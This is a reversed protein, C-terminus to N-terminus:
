RTRGRRVDLCTNDFHSRLALLESLVENPFGTRNGRRDVLLEYLHERLAPPDDWNAALSNAVRPFQRTLQLPWVSRPLRAIWKFTGPLVVSTPQAKRLHRCSVAAVPDPEGFTSCRRREFNFRHVSFDTLPGEDITHYISM